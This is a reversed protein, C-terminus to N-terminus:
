EIVVEQVGSAWDKQLIIEIKVADIRVPEFTVENFKDKETRYPSDTTVPKFQGDADRDFGIRRDSKSMDNRKKHLFIRNPDDKSVNEKYLELKYTFFASEYGNDWRIRICGKGLRGIMTGVCGYESGWLPITPSPTGMAHALIIRDDKRFDGM